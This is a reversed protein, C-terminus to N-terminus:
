GSTRSPRLAISNAVISRSPMPTVATAASDSVSVAFRRVRTMPPASRRGPPARGGIARRVLARPAITIPRAAPVSASDPMDAALPSAMGPSGNYETFREV